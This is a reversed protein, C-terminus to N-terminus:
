ASKREDVTRVLDAMDVDLAAALRGINTLSPNREGREIGGVYTRHLGSVNALDEQSLGRQVRVQRLRAGFAVHLPSRHATMGRPVSM